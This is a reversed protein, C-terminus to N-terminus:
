RGADLAHSGSVDTEIILILTWFVSMSVSMGGFLSTEFFSYAMLGLITFSFLHRRSTSKAACLLAVILVMMWFSFGVFGISMIVHLYSNHVSLGGFFAGFYDQSAGSGVGLFPRHSLVEDFTYKWMEARGSLGSGQLKRVFLLDGGNRSLFLLIAPLSLLLLFFAKASALMPATAILIGLISARSGSVVLNLVLVVYSMVIYLKIRWSGSWKERFGEDTALFLNMLMLTLMIVQGFKNPNVFIGRPATWYRFYTSMNIIGVFGLTNIWCISTVCINMIVVLTRIHGKLRYATFFYRPILYFVAFVLFVSVIITASQVPQTSPIAALLGWCLILGLLYIYKDAILRKVYGRKLAALMSVAFISLALLYFLKTWSSEFQEVLFSSQFIQAVLLFSFLLQYEPFRVKFAVIGAVASLILVRPDIWIGFILGIPLFLTISMVVRNRMSESM